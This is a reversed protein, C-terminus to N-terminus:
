IKKEIRHQSTVIWHLERKKKFEGQMRSRKKERLTNM